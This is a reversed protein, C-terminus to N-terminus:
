SKEFEISVENGVLPRILLTGDFCRVTLAGDEMFAEIYMQPNQEWRVRERSRSEIKPKVSDNFKM